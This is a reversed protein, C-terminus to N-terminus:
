LKSTERISTYAGGAFVFHDLLRINLTSLLKALEQTMILDESSPLPTGNPHNHAIVISDAGVHLSIEVIKRTDISVSTTNGTSVEECCLIKMKPSLCLLYIKEVTADFFYPRMFDSLQEKSIFEVGKVERSIQYRKCIQPILKILTATNEGIGNVSMLADIPADFVNSFSGFKEILAHGIPNTDRRPVSFFLLLELITHDEFHDLDENLFREKLHKRHGEAM